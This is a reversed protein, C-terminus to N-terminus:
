SAFGFGFGVACQARSREHSKLLNCTIALLESQNMWSSAGITIAQLLEKLTLKEVTM